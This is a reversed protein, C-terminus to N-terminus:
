LVLMDPLRQSASELTTGCLDSIVVWEGATLNGQHHYLFRELGGEDAERLLM